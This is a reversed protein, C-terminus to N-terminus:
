KKLAYIEMTVLLALIFVIYLPHFLKFFRLLVLTVLGLAILFGRRSNNLLLSTTIFVALFLLLFFVVLTPMAIPFISLSEKPSTKYILYGLGGWGIIALILTPILRKKRRM